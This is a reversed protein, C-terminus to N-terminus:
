GNRRKAECSEKRQRCVMELVSGTLMQKVKVVYETKRKEECCSVGM